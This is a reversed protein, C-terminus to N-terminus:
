GWPRSAIRRIQCLWRGTAGAEIPRPQIPTPLDVAKLVPVASDAMTFLAENMAKLDVGRELILAIKTVYGLRAAEILAGEGSIGGAVPDAGHELLLKVADRHGFDAAIAVATSGGEDRAEIRAGQRLLRHLSPIDGKRAAQLLEADLRASNGARRTCGITASALLSLLVTTPFRAFTM